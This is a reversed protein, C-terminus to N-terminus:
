SVFLFFILLPPRCFNRLAYVLSHSLTAHCSRAWDDQNVIRNRPPNMVRGNRPGQTFSLSSGNAFTAQDNDKVRLCVFLSAPILIHCTVPGARKTILYISQRPQELTSIRFPGRCLSSGGHCSRMCDINDLRPCITLLTHSSHRTGLLSRSAVFLIRVNRLSGHVEATEEKGVRPFLSDM